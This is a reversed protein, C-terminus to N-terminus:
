RKKKFLQPIHKELDFRRTAWKVAWGYIIFTLVISVLFGIFLIVYYVTPNANSGLILQAAVIILIIFFLFLIINFLFAVIFFVILNATKNM